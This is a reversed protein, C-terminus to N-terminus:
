SQRGEIRSMGNIVRNLLKFKKRDIYDHLTYDNYSAIIQSIENNMTSAKYIKKDQYRYTAYYIYAIQNHDLKSDLNFKKCFKNWTKLRRNQNKYTEEVKSNKALM